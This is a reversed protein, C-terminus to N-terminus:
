HEAATLRSAQDAVSTTSGSLAQIAIATAVKRITSATM